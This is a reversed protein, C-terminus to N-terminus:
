KKNRMAKNHVRWQRRKEAALRADQRIALAELERQLKRYSEWREAPLAGSALAERVACGPESEHACDSFRCNAAIEEVDSRRTSGPKPM